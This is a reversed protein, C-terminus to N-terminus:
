SLEDLRFLVRGGAGRGVKYGLGICSVSHYITLRSCNMVAGLNPWWSLEDM